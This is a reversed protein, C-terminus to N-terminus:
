GPPVIILDSSSVPNNLSTPLQQGAWKCPSMEGGLFACSNDARAGFRLQISHRSTSLPFRRLLGAPRSRTPSQGSPSAVSCSPAPLAGEEM